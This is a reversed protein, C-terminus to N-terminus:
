KEKKFMATWGGRGFFERPVVPFIEVPFTILKNGPCNELNNMDEELTHLIHLLIDFTQQSMLAEEILDSNTKSFNTAVTIGLTMDTKTNVDSKSLGIKGYEVFLIVGKSNNVRDAVASENVSFIFTEIESIVKSTGINNVASVFEIYNSFDSKIGKVAAKSRADQSVFAAFYKYLDLIM